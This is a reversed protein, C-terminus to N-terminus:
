QNRIEEQLQINEYFSMGTDEIIVGGLAALDDCIHEYGRRIFSYGRVTTMGRAALAAIVLAAGGRLEEAYVTCGRLLPCGRVWADRGAVTIGAGMRNLEGAAKYRDEFIKERIHSEGQVTTLVALLPSQLDTPFGPYVETELYSVPFRVCSGDAILKGSKVEYQGGMKRYVELFADLEGEPPNAITIKGRTAAGACLYTGAVIRDPPVQMEGRVLGSVGTIHICDGGDGQIGAGMGRLYRCLWLIEPERACNKLCTEGEALVAALIGQETAGVSRKAFTIEAGKLRRCHAGIVFAGEEIVAGLERLAYLHLDIPRKGIVCGGPYGISGKKNRGLMAGLLIVSSRMKGTHIGCIETKDAYTCDMYLDHDEWWTVAGLERLIKEMCFVDAIKPCGKLVSVGRHLLSAAMMPLAANKSGQIHVTGCLPVGGAIRIEDM